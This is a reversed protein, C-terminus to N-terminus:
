PLLFHSCSPSTVPFINWCLPHSARLGQLLLSRPFKLPSCLGTHDSCLSCPFSVHHHSPHAPSCLSPTLDSDPNASVDTGCRLLVGPWIQTVAPFLVSRDTLVNSCLHLWPHMPTQSSSWHLAHLSTSPDSAYKPPPFALLHHYMLQSLHLPHLSLSRELKGKWVVPHIGNVLVPGNESEENM